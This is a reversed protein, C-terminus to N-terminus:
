TLYPVIRDRVQHFVCGRPARLRRAAEVLTREDEVADAVLERVREIPAVLETAFARAESHVGSQIDRHVVSAADRDAGSVFLM